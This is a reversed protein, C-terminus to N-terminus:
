LKVDDNAKNPGFDWHCYNFAVDLNLLVLFFLLMWNWGYIILNNFLLFLFLLQCPSLQSNHGRHCCYKWQSPEQSKNKNTKKLAEVKAKWCNRGLQTTWSWSYFQFNPISFCSKLLLSSLSLTFTASNLMGEEGRYCWFM